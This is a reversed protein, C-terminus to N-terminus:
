PFLRDRVEMLSAGLCHRSGGVPLRHAAELLRQRRQRVQGPGALRQLLGNIKAEIQSSCEKWESFELPNGATEVFGLAQGPREVILPSEALQGDIQTVVQPHSTMRRFRQHEALVGLSKGLRKSINRELHRSIEVEAHGAKARPVISPGLIREQFDQLQKFTLQAPFTKAEGSERSHDGAAIQSQNEGVSSLELFPDGVALLADAEGLREIV